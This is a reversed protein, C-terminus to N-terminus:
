GTPAEDAQDPREIGKVSKEIRSRPAMIEHDCGICKLKFDAGVRLMRWKNSGCPHNKKLTLIDGVKIDMCRFIYRISRACHM